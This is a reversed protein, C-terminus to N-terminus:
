VEVELSVSKLREVLAKGKSTTTWVQEGYGALEILGHRMLLALGEIVAPAHRRPHPEPSTHCHLLVEINSATRLVAVRPGKTKTNM